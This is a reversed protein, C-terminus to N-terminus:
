FFVLVVVVSAFKISLGASFDKQKEWESWARVTLLFEIMVRSNSPLNSHRM